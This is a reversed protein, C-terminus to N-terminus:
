SILMITVGGLSKPTSLFTWAIVGCSEDNLSFYYLQVVCCSIHITFIDV